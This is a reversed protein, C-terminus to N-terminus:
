IKTSLKPVRLNKRENLKELAASFAKRYTDYTNTKKMPYTLNKFVQKVKLVKTFDEVSLSEPFHM